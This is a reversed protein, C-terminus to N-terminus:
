CSRSTLRYNKPPLSNDPVLPEPLDRHTLWTVHKRLSHKITNCALGAPRYIYTFERDKVVLRMNAPMGKYLPVSVSLEFEDSKLPVPQDKQADLVCYYTEVEPGLQPRKGQCCTLAEALMKEQNLLLRDTVDVSANIGPVAFTVSVEKAKYGLNPQYWLAKQRFLPNTLYQVLCWASVLRLDKLGKADNLLTAQIQATKM